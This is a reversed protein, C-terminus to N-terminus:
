GTQHGRLHLYGSTLLDPGHDLCLLNWMYYIVWHIVMNGLYLAKDHSQGNGHFNISTNFAVSVRNNWTRLSVKNNIKEKSCCLVCIIM